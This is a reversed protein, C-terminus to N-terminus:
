RSNKEYYCVLEAPTWGYFCIVDVVGIALVLPHVSEGLRICLDDIIRLTEAATAKKLSSPQVDRFM